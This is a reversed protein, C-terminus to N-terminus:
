VGCAGDSSTDAAVRGLVTRARGPAWARTATRSRRSGEGGCSRRRAPARSREAPTDRWRPRGGCQRALPAGAAECGIVNAMRQRRPARHHKQMSLPLAPLM